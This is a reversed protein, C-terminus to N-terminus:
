AIGPWAYNLITITATDKIEPSVGKLRVTVHVTTENGFLTAPQYLYEPGNDFLQGTDDRLWEFEASDSHYLLARFLQMQNSPDIYNNPPDLRYYLNVRRPYIEVIPKPKPEPGLGVVAVRASANRTADDVSTATVIETFAFPLSPGKLPAVYLGQADIIGAGPGGDLGHVAWTVRSSPANYVIAEFQAKANLPHSFREDRFCVEAQAPAVEVEIRHQCIVHGCFESGCSDM